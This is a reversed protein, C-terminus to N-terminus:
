TGVKLQVINCAVKISIAYKKLQQGNLVIRPFCGPLGCLISKEYLYWNYSHVILNGISAVSM